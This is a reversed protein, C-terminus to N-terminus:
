LFSKGAFVLIQLSADAEALFADGGVDNPPIAEFRSQPLILMMSNFVTSLDKVSVRDQTSM